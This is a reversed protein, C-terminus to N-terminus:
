RRKSLLFSQLGALDDANLFDVGADYLVEWVAPNDSTAWFRLKRGQAHTKEVVEGLKKRGEAPLEGRGYWAAITNWNSSILPIFSVPEPSDADLDELRGDYAAWRETEAKMLERPRNGSIIAMVPGPEIEEQTFRTLMSQYKQLEERLALYTAEADSKIDILLILPEETDAYIRGENQEIHARLPVLYLSELRRAPEVDVIDHAVLLDGDVLFIDVEVSMFGRELAELLPREHEYDNHAHARLLPEIIVQNTGTCGIGVVCALVIGVPILRRLLKIKM